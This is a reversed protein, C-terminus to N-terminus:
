SHPNPRLVYPSSPNPSCSGPYSLPRPSNRTSVGRTSGDTFSESPGVSQNSYIDVPPPAGSVRKPVGVSRQSNTDAEAQHPCSSGQSTRRAAARAAATM